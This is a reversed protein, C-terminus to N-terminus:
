SAKPILAEGWDGPKFGALAVGRGIVFPRKVLNGNESLLRIADATTMAPLKEALGLNRYDIGSTNFLRRANGGLLDLASQLEGISPPTERIENLRYAIGHSDLWKLANRCTSCNRYAYVNLM